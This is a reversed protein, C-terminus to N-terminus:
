KVITPSIIYDSTPSVSPNLISYAKTSLIDLNLTNNTNKPIKTIIPLCSNSKLEKLVRQGIKNFGLVRAYPCPVKRLEKTNYNDFGIYIQALIRNIRTYSYRKSKINLILEELSNSKYIEKIIKHDLGESVDPLKKLCNNETLLKYKIYPFMNEGFTLNYNQKQLQVLSAYLDKPIFNELHNLDSKNKLYNRIASASSFEQSLILDSYNCGKRTITIPNISSNLKLLSKCYEIGLINNSNNLISAFDISSKATDRLIFEKLANNRALPYSLGKNLHKKLITTYEYPELNLIKAIEHLINLDGCESGFCLDSVINLGNLLSVAGFAFFEASSLSYISPLELVLDVGNNLALKARKWKDMISPMGRQVFNGSMVALVADCNTLERAKKLHYIHGNHFPNYEVIVGCIKM